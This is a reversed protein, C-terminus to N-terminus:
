TKGWRNLPIKAEGVKAKGAVKHAKVKEKMEHRKAKMADKRAKM